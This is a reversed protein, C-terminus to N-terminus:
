SPKNRQRKKTASIVLSSGTLVAGVFFSIEPLDVTSMLTRNKQM